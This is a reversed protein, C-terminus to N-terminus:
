GNNEISDNFFYAMVDLNQCNTFEVTIQWWYDSPLEVWFAPIDGVATTNFEAIVPTDSYVTATMAVPYGQSVNLVGYLYIGSQSFATTAFLACISILLILRKM